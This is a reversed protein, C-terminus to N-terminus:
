HKLWGWVAKEASNINQRYILAKRWTHMIRRMYSFAWSLIIEILLLCDEFRGENM